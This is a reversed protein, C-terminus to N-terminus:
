PQTQEALASPNFDTADDKVHPKVYGAVVDADYKAKLFTKADQGERTRMDALVIRNYTRFSTKGTAPNIGSPYQLRMVRKGVLQDLLAQPISNDPDLKWDSPQVRMDNLFIKVKMAAGWSVNGDAIKTNGAIIVEPFFSKGIDLTLKVGVDVPEGKKYVDQNSVSEAKTITAEDIFIGTFPKPDNGLSM